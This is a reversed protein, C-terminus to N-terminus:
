SVDVDAGVIAVKFTDASSLEFIRDSRSYRWTSGLRTFRVSQSTRGKPGAPRIRQNSWSAGGDDSWRLIVQPETDEPVEIGTEMDIRLAAFRTTAERPQALARWRRLWRKPVCNDTLVSNTITYINGNRYDGLTGWGVPQPQATVSYTASWVTLTGMYSAQVQWLITEGPLTPIELSTLHTGMVYTWETAGAPQWRVNYFDPNSM